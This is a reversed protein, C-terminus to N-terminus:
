YSWDTTPISQVSAPYVGQEILAFGLDCNLNRGGSPVPINKADVTGTEGEPLASSLLPISGQVTTKLEPPIIVRVTYYGPYLDSFLYYGYADTETAAVLAGYQWLEVKVQPVLPENRDLLGNGNEDIWALDGLKGPAGIGIDCGTMEVGMPLTFDDSVTSDSTIMSERRAKDAERAFLYPQELTCSLRYSGPKLADFRYHGNEDTITEALANGEFLLRITLGEVGSLSDDANWVTGDIHGYRILAYSFANKAGADISIESVWCSNDFVASSGDAPVTESNTFVSLTYAGPLIGYLTCRGSEDTTFSYSQSGVKSTLQLTIGAAGADAATRLTTNNESYFVEASLDTSLTVAINRETFHDAPAFTLAASSSAGVTEPVPSTADPGFCYGDPLRVSISYQGPRVWATYRGEADATVTIPGYADSLEDHSLTIVAGAFGSEHGDLKGSLDTDYYVTGSLEATHVATIEAVNKDEAGSLDFSASQWTDGAVFPQTFATGEPLTYSLAFTGPLAGKLYFHGDEDTLTSTIESVPTGDPTVLRVRVGELGGSESVSTVASSLSVNGSITASRFLAAHQDNRNEGPLLVFPAIEGYEEIQSAIRSEMGSGEGSLSTCVWADVMLVRLTYSQPILGSLTYAGITDTVTQSVMTGDPNIAQVTFGSLGKESSDMRGNLDTDNFIIGSVSAAKTVGAAFTSQEGHPLTLAITVDGSATLAAFLNEEGNVTFVCGEPLVARVDMEGGRLVPIRALGNEDSLVEAVQRDHDYVSLVAGAFPQDEPNCLGNADADQYFRVSLSTVPMVGIPQLETSSDVEVNLKVSASFSYGESLLSEGPLTFMASEPLTVTLTYEGPMLSDFCFTGDSASSLLRDVGCDVSELRLVADAYGTETGNKMGDCDNDAWLSGNVRGTHTLGVGVGTSGGKPADFVNSWGVSSDCPIICNYWGNEKAGKPSFTYDESLEM